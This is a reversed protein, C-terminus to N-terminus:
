PYRRMRRSRILMVVMSAPSTLTGAVGVAVRVGVWVGVRVGVFVGVFVAVPVGVFVGVRVAVPVGVFMGVSVGVFM